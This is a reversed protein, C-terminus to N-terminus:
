TRALYYLCRDSIIAKKANDLLAKGDSGLNSNFKIPNQEVNFNQRTRDLTIMYLGTIYDIIEPNSDKDLYPIVYTNSKVTIDDETYPKDFKTVKYEYCEWVEYTGSYPLYLVPKDYRWAFNYMQNPNGTNTQQSFYYNSSFAINPVVKGIWDPINGTDDPYVYTYGSKITTKIIYPCYKSYFQLSQKLIPIFLKDKIEIISSDVLAQGSLLKVEEFLEDVIVM